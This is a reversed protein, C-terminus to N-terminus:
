LKFQTSPTSLAQKVYFVGLFAFSFSFHGDPHLANTTTAVSSARGASHWHDM